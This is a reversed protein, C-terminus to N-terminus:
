MAMWLQARFSACQTRCIAKFPLRRVGLFGAPVNRPRREADGERRALVPSRRCLQHIKPPPQSEKRPSRRSESADEVGARVQPAQLASLDSLDPCASLNLELLRACKAVPELDRQSACCCCADNSTRQPRRTLANEQREGKSKIRLPTSLVGPQMACPISPGSIGLVSNRLASRCSDGAGARVLLCGSLDLQQM